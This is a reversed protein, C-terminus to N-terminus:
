EEKPSARWLHVSLGCNTCEYKHWAEYHDLVEEVDQTDFCDDATLPDLCSPCKLVGNPKQWEQM